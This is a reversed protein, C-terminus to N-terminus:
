DKDEEKENIIHDIASYPIVGANQYSYIEEDPDFDVNEDVKLKDLDLKSVDIALVIIQDYWDEDVSDIDSNSAFDEALNPDTTLYVHSSSSDSWNPKGKSPNLGHEFISALLPKYTAHYLFKM